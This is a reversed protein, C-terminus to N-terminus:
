GLRTFLSSFSHKSIVSVCIRSTGGNDFGPLLTSHSSVRIVYMQDKLHHLLNTSYACISFSRFPVASFRRGVICYVPFTWRSQCSFFFDDFHLHVNASCLTGIRSGSNCNMVRSRRRSRYYFGSIGCRCDRTTIQLYYNHVTVHM